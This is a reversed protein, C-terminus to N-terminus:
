ILKRRVLEIITKSTEEKERHTHVVQVRGPERAAIAAFGQQTRLRFALAEGEMRDSDSRRAMRNSLEVQGADLLITLDPTLGGTALHNLQRVLDPDIGRGYGQYSETSDTFRDCIVIQGSALAPRIVQEVIQARAAEFLLLETIATMEGNEKALLVNRIQEGIDTGGPERLLLVDYGAEALHAKLFRIQTTKGSGDMGEFTIFLGRESSRVDINNDEDM